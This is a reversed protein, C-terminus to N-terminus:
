TKVNIVHWANAVAKIIMGIMASQHSKATWISLARVFPLKIWWLCRFAVILTSEAMSLQHKMLTGMDSLCSGDGRKAKPGLPLRTFLSHQNLKPLEVAM